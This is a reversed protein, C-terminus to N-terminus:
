HSIRSIQRMLRRGQRRAKNSSNDNTTSRTLTHRTENMAYNTSQYVNKVGLAIFTTRLFTAMM